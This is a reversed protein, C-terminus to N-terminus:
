FCQKRVWVVRRSPKAARKKDRGPPPFTERRSEQRERIAALNRPVIRTEGLRRSPKAARNKGWASGRFPFDRSEQGVRLRPFSNDCSEQGMRLRPFNSVAFLGAGRPYNARTQPLIVPLAEFLYMRNLTPPKM